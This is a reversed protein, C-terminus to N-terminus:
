FENTSDEKIREILIRNYESLNECEEELDQIYEEKEIIDNIVEELQGLTQELNGKIHRLVKTSNEM